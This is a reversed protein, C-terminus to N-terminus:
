AWVLLFRNKIASWQPAVLACFIKWSYEGVAMTRCAVFSYFVPSSHHLVRYLGIADEDHFNLMSSLSILACTCACPKPENALWKTFDHSHFLLMISSRLKAHSNTHLKKHTFWWMPILKNDISTFRCRSINKRSTCFHIGKLLHFRNSRSKDSWRAGFITSSQRKFQIFGASLKATEDSGFDILAFIIRKIQSLLITRSTAVFYAFNFARFIETVYLFCNDKILKKGTFFRASDTQRERMKRFDFIWPYQM